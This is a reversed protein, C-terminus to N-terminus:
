DSSTEPRGFLVRMVKDLSNDIEEAVGIYVQLSSGIPDIIDSGHSQLDALFGEEAGLDSLLALIAGVRARVKREGQVVEDGLRYSVEGALGALYKLTTSKELYRQGMRGITLLHDRSMCLVLDARDLHSPTLMAAQHSEIDIGWLDMAQIASHTAQNGDIAFTGASSAEVFPVLNPYDSMLKARFFAEAMPSRCINGTCVFLMKLAKLRAKM